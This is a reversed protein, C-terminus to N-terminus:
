ATTPVDEKKLVTTAYIELLAFLLSLVLPGTLFGIPGFLGLGGLVSLLILFPHINVGQELLKPRLFNDILGVVLFGWLALGIASGIHGGAFVYLIGPIVVISTGVVPILSTIVAIAGWFIASPVGFVWFGIGALLGQIIAVALTGKVVSNVTIHLKKFIANTYESSLPTLGALAHTFKKGDRLFYYVGVLSLFFFGVASVVGSFVSGLNKLGWELGSKVYQDFDFVAAPLNFKVGYQRLTDALHHVTGLSADPNSLKAYLNGAENFLQIGFVVVPIFIVLFIIVVTLFAAWSKHKGIEENIKRYVPGFVIALTASLVILDLYPLFVFGTLVLVAILLTLFFYSETHNHEM